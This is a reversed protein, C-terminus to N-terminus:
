KGRREDSISFQSRFRIERLWFNIQAYKSRLNPQITFGQKLEYEKNM